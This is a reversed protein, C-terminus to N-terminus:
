FFFFFSLTKWQVIARKIACSLKCISCLVFLVPAKAEVINLHSFFIIIIIIFLFLSFFVAVVVKNKDTVWLLSKCNLKKIVFFLLLYFFCTFSYFCSYIINPFLKQIAACNIMIIIFLLFYFFYNVSSFSLYLLLYYFSCVSFIKAFVARIFYIYIYCTYKVRESRQM